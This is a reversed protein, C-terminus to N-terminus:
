LSISFDPPLTFYFHGGWPRLTFFPRAASCSAQFSAPRHCSPQCDTPHRTALPSRTRTEATHASTESEDETEPAQHSQARHRQPTRGQPSTPRARTPPIAKRLPLTHLWGVPDGRHDQSPAPHGRAQDKPIQWRQNDYRITFDNNVSRTLTESFLAELDARKPLKRHANRAKAPEVAFRDNWYDVYIEELYRNGDELTSIGLVRMEKILRDQDTGFNREIRGKAQPSHAQILGVNLEALAQRIISETRKAEREQLPTKSVSRTWQGFHGAKDTYFAVPRGYRRLYDIVVGRNAAGNDRPVFRAMLLRNTADDHMKILVFKGSMRKEFWEHESSDWQILEGFAARRPRAKRHRAKRRKAEWLGEDIMWLRLTPAKVAQGDRGRSLHEALLTPGFDTYLPDGARELVWARHEAPKRHNSPRGRLGHAVARDGEREWARRLRRFHRASLGLQEAGQGATLIGDRVQRLVSTREIERQSM